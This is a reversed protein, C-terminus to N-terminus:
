AAAAELLLGEREADFIWDRSRLPADEVVRFRRAIEIGLEKFAGEGQTENIEELTTQAPERRGTAALAHLWIVNTISAPAAEIVKIAASAHGARLELRALAARFLRRQRAFPIKRIGLNLLKRGAWSRGQAELLFARLLLRNWQDQSRPTEEPLLKEAESLRGLQILLAAKAATAREHHPRAQLIANYATLADDWLHLRRLIDARSAQSYTDHPFRRIVEEYQALAEGYQGRLKLLGAYNAALARDYPFKKTAESLLDAAESFRRLEKLVEAKGSRPIPEYPAREIALDYAELAAELDGQSRFVEARGSLLPAENPFDKLAEEYVRLAAEFDGALKYATARGNKAVVGASHTSAIGFNKVAEDFNGLDMWVSALGAWVSGEFPFELSLAKYESLAEEYKGLDRLTEAAGLRARWVDPDDRFKEAAALYRERAEIPRSTSRLIRARGTEASLHAGLSDIQDFVLSAEGFRGVCMLADALHAFTLPDAPNAQIAMEAWELQMEPVGLEKAQHSLRSLSKGIHEASSTRAQSQILETAYQRAGILDREKLRSVIALQQSMASEYARRGTQSVFPTEEIQIDELADPVMSPTKIRQSRMTATWRDVIHRSNEIHRLWGLLQLIYFDLKEGKKLLQVIDFIAGRNAVAEMFEARSQEGGFTENPVADLDTRVRAIERQDELLTVLTSLVKPFKDAVDKLRGIEVLTPLKNVYLSRRLFLEVDREQLLGELCECYESLADKPEDRDLLLLFLRLARDKAWAKRVLADAAVASAVECRQVDTCDLFALGINGTSYGDIPAAGIQRLQISKGYLAAAGAQGSILADM